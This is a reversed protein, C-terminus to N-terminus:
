SAAECGSRAAGRKIQRDLTDSALHKALCDTSCFDGSIIEDGGLPIIRTVTAHIWNSSPVTGKEAKGCGDCITGTSM